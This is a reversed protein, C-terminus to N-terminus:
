PQRFRGHVAMGDRFATVKTPFGAGVKERLAATWREMTALVSAHLRAAEADTLRTTWTLPSLQAHWRIEDSYANGIGSFIRPSTLARKLTHNQARLQVAFQDATSDMVELGGPDHEALATRGQVVHLSARKKASAETMVLTGADFDFAVLGVRGPTKADRDLWRFRGAIMLHFVLFLEDELAVVIRKGLREVGTVEKGHAAFIPPDYTRLLFPSAIRTGHLSDGVIRQELCEVYVTVDPLEPM